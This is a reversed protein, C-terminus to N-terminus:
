NKQEYMHGIYEDIITQISDVNHVPGKITSKCPVEIGNNCNNAAEQDSGSKYCVWYFYRLEAVEFYRASCAKRVYQNHVKGPELESDLRERIVPTWIQRYIHYGTVVAQFEYIKRKIHRVLWRRKKGQYDFHTIDFLIILTNILHILLSSDM